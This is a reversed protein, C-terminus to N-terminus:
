RTTILDDDSFVPTAMAVAFTNAGTHSLTQPLVLLLCTSINWTYNYVHRPFAVFLVPSSPRHFSCVM